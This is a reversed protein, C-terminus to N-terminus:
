LSFLIDGCRNTVIREFKTTFETTTMLLSELAKSVSLALNNGSTWDISQFFQCAWSFSFLYLSVISLLM